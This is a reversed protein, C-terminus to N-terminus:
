RPPRLIETEIAAGHPHIHQISRWTLGSEPDRWYTNHFSWNLQESDSICRENTRITHIAKGLITITEPGTKQDQCSIPVSYLGLDAFDALWHVAWRGDIDHIVRVTQYGSLNHPLGATRVIRGNKTTLAIRAASTWLREGHTGGALVIMTQRGDDLRVGMSAYPVSAAQALTVNRGEGRWEARALRYMQGMVGGGFTTNSCATLGLLAACTVGRLTRRHRSSKM